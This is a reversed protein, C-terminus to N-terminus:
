SNSMHSAYEELLQQHLETFTFDSNPFFEGINGDEEVYDFYPWMKEDTLGYRYCQLTACFDDTNNFLRHSQYWHPSMWTVDGISVHFQKIMTKMDKNYIEVRIGGHLVKIVGFSNGHCHVPSGENTPWLELVYPIGPSTAHSPGVTVRIYKMKKSKLKMNLIKGETNLSYRIANCFNYTHEFDSPVWDLSINASSINSYLEQCEPPLSATFIYDNRDLEFLNATSSDKVAFPWNVILPQPYFDVKHMIQLDQLINKGPADRLVMDCFEIVKEVGPGLLKKMDCRKKIQEEITSGALFNHQLLTTEEMFYGKGYKLVLNDRDLSFWYSTTCTPDFGVGERCVEALDQVEDGGLQFQVRDQEIALTIWHSSGSRSEPRLVIDFPTERKVTFTFIGQGHRPFSTCWTVSKKVANAVTTCDSGKHKKALPEQHYEM